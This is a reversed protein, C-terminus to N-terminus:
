FSRRKCGTTRVLGTIASWGCLFVGRDPYPCSPYRASEPTLRRALYTRSNPDHGCRAVGGTATDVTLARPRVMRVRQGSCPSALPTDGFYITEQQYATQIFLAAAGKTM